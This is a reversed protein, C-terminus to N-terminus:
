FNVINLRELLADLTDPDLDPYWLAPKLNSTFWFRKAVLPTSSGKLEVNVPYRDLWRLLHAIDIAGRFEDFVVNEQGRYGDWFKSRPDKSYADKGAEEWARRSKGTRTPGVFCEASRIIEIPEAYRSSIACLNRYHHIRVHAPVEEITGAKAKSWVSEWDVKSNVRIPKAGFEFPQGIRTEEKWCYENAAESRTLEAHVTRGFVRKVGELSVKESFAVVFQYHEFGTQAGRELQGKIWKIGEPLIGEEIPVM